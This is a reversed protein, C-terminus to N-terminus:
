FPLMLPLILFYYFLAKVHKISLKFFFYSKQDLLIKFGRPKLDEKRITIFYYLEM